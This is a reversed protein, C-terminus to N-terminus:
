KTYSEFNLLPCIDMVSSLDVQRSPDAGQLVYVMNLVYHSWLWM